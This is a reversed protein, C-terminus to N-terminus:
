GDRSGEAGAPLAVRPEAAPRAYAAVRLLHWSAGAERRGVALWRSARWGAASHVRLLMWPGLDLMVALAGTAEDATWRQGDWALQTARGPSRRWAWAALAGALGLGAAAGLGPHGLHGGAWAVFAAVAVAPLLASWARWFAGGACRVSVAPAARM